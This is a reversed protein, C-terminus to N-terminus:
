SQVKYTVTVPVGHCWVGRFGHKKGTFAQYRDDRGCEPCFQISITEPPKITM